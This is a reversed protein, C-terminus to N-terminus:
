NEEKPWAKRWATNKQQDSWVYQQKQKKAQWSNKERRAAAKERDKARKKAQKAKRRAIREEHAIHAFAAGATPDAYGESNRYM